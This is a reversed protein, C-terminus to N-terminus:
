ILTCVGRASYGEGLFVLEASTFGGGGISLCTGLALQRIHLFAYSLRIVDNERVLGSWVERPEQLQDEYTQCM